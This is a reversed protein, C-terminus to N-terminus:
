FGVGIGVGGWSRGGSGVGFGFNVRPSVQRDRQQPWLVLEDSLLLPFTYAAEGVQGERQETVRGTATIQRGKRYDVRELYGPHQALFRGTPSATVDPRGNSKLPYALIQLETTEALNSTEVIVGGWQILKDDVTVAMSAVETPSIGREANEAVKPTSACGNLILLTLL